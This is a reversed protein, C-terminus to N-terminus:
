YFFDKKNMFDIVCINDNNKINNFAAFKKTLESYKIKHNRLNRSKNRLTTLNIDFLKKKSESKKFDNKKGNNKKGFLHGFDKLMFKKILEKSIIKKNKGSKIRNSNIHNHNNRETLPLLSKNSSNNQKKLLIPNKERQISKSSKRKFNNLYQQNKEYKRFTKTVDSDIMNKNKKNRYMKNFVNRIYWGSLDVYNGNFNLRQENKVTINSLYREKVSEEDTDGIFLRTFSNCYLFPKTSKNKRKFITINNNRNLIINGIEVNEEENKISENHENNENNKILLKKNSSSTNEITRSNYKTNNNKDKQKIIKSTSSDSKLKSTIFIHNKTNNFNKQSYNYIPNKLTKTKKTKRNTKSLLYDNGKINHLCYYENQIEELCFQFYIQVLYILSFEKNILSYLKKIKINSLHYLYYYEVSNIEYIEDTFSDEDSPYNEVTMKLTFLNFIKNWGSKKQTRKKSEAPITESLPYHPRLCNHVQYLLINRFNKFYKIKTYLKIKTKIFSEIDM